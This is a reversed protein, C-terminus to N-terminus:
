RSADDLGDFRSVSVADYYDPAVGDAILDAVIRGAAPALMIGDGNHVVVHVGEVDTGGVIPAGDAVSTRVGVWEEEVDADAWAPVLEPLVEAATAALERAVREGVADPDRRETEEPVHGVFVAGNRDQRAYLGSEVHKVSPITSGLPDDARLRLVSGLSHEVPLDVGADELLDVNWPGAACVVADAEEFGNGTVVGTARGAETVIETVERNVRVTAGRERAREFLVNAAEYPHTYVINPRYIAGRVPETNLAPALLAGAVDDGPLYTVTSAASEAAENLRAAEERLAAAGDRTTAVGIRGALHTEVGTERECLLDNYLEIGYRKMRRRAGAEGGYYGVFAASKTTTESALSQREYVVVERDTRDSLHYAVSAGTIGGGVVVVPKSSM